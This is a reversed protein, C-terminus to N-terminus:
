VMEKAVAKLDGAKVLLWTGPENRECLAVVPIKGEKKAKEATDRWLAVATHRIRYKAEIYIRPHLSDSSTDHGSNSGSLPTRKSGFLAAIRREAAKWTAKATM